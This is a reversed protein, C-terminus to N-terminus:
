RWRLTLANDEDLEVRTGLGDGERNLVDRLWAADKRSARNLKFNRIQLPTMRFRVLRGSSPAITPFYM